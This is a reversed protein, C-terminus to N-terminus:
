VVAHAREAASSPSPVSATIATGVVGSPVIDTSASRSSVSFSSTIAITPVAPVVSRPAISGSSAIASRAWSSPAQNWTSAATPDPSVSDSVCRRRSSPMSRACEIM